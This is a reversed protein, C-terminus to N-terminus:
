SLSYQAFKSVTEGLDEDGGLSASGRQDSKIGLEKELRSRLAFGGLREALAWLQSWTAALQAKAGAVERAEQLAEAVRLLARRDEVLLGDAISAIQRAEPTLIEPEDATASVERLPVPRSTFGLLYMPSVGFVKAIGIIYDGRPWVDQTEIKGIYGQSAEVRPSLKALAEVLGEQTMGTGDGWQLRLEKQIEGFRSPMDAGGIGLCVNRSARMKRIGYNMTADFANYQLHSLKRYVPFHSFKPAISVYFDPPIM